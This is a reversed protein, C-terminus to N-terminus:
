KILSYSIAASQAGIGSTHVLACTENHKSLRRVFNLDFESELLNAIPPLLKQRLALLAIISESIGTASMMHGTSPKICTVKADPFSEKFAVAESADGKQTGSGNAFIVGPNVSKNNTAQLLATQDGAPLLLNIPNIANGYGNIEAYINAGREQAKEYEELVIAAGGEGLLTGDRKTDFPRITTGDSLIGLKKLAALNYDNIEPTSGAVIMFDAEGRRIINYGEGIAQM